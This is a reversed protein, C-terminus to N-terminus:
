CIQITELTCGVDATCTQHAINQTSGLGINIMGVCVRVCGCARARARLTHCVQLMSCADCYFKDSGALREVASFKDFCHSISSNQTV